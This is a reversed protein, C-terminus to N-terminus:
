RLLFPQPDALSYTDDPHRVYYDPVSLGASKCETTDKCQYPTKCGSCPSVFTEKKDNM